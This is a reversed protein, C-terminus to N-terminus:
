PALWQGAWGDTREFRARRHKPGLHLVDFVQVAFHLVAFNTATARKDYALAENIPLGPAPQTGYSQQSADPVKAWIAAVDDGVLIRVDGTIRTQLHASADWIHVAAQPNRRLATVKASRLDTHFQLTAGPANAARLVITRVQPDGDPSVTALTPHRAPAHRDAVGRVLRAWVQAYLTTLDAAWPHPDVTM